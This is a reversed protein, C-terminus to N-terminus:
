GDSDIRRLKRVTALVDKRYARAQKGSGNYREVAKNYGHEKVLEDLIEEAKKTQGEISKDFKGWHREQIQYLGFSKGKDGVTNPDFTGGTEQKAIAALTYPYKTKKIANAIRKDKVLYDISTTRSGVSVNYCQKKPTDLLFMPICWITTIVLLVVLSLRKM